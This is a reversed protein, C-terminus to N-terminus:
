RVGNGAQSPVLNEFLTMWRNMVSAESYTDAVKRAEESMDHRLADDDMLRMMADALATIDGDKVLFGSVGDKIIDEPGCPCDFAVAPVGCSMSEALVMPFGEYHSTMVLMSSRTYEQMIDSTPSNLRVSSALGLSQIQEQLRDHWEGKGFIDLRWDGYRGTRMVKGWAEILRDFGKQWDLRGVAIVRHRSVDSYASPRIIGNPIVEINPLSGWNRCDEETLVVFRDFRRVLRVDQWSRFRDAMGLLGRRGYKIRFFRNFHLELVKRSGDRIDPIFSSESPFMSVVVDAKERMLLDTLRAKHLRRRRLYGAIKAMAPGANDDSYDVGLDIMEVGSPFQYFPPRGHQDTTVIKVQWDTNSVIWSVKNSLVREM